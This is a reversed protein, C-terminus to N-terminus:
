INCISPFLMSYLTPSKEHLLEISVTSGLLWSYLEPSSVLFTINNQLAYLIYNIVQNIKTYDIRILRYGTQLGIFTKLRDYEQRREFNDHNQHFLTKQFHQIGDFEILFHMGNYIFYFDYKHSRLYPHRYQTVYSIGLNNLAQSVQFEGKSQNCIPCWTNRSFVDRPLVNWRHGKECEVSVHTRSNIYETYSKGGKNKVFNLFRNENVIVNQGACTPCWHGEKIHHPSPKWAHGFKCKIEVHTTVNVYTGIVEGGKEIVIKFFDEKAKHSGKMCIKCYYGSKINDPRSMWQHGYQCEVLVHTIKNIYRDSLIKGGKSQVIACIENYHRQQETNM